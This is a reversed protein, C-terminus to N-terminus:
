KIKKDTTIPAITEVKINRFECKIVQKTEACIELLAIKKAQTQGGITPVTFRMVLPVKVGSIFKFYISLKDKVSGIELQNCNIRNGSDDYLRIASDSMCNACIKLDSDIGQNTITGSVIMESGNAICSSIEVLNHDLIAKTIVANPDPPPVSPSVNSTNASTNKSINDSAAVKYRATYILNVLLCITTIATFIQLFIKQAKSM